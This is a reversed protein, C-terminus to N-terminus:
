ARAMLELAAATQEHFVTDALRKITRRWSELFNSDSLQISKVDPHLLRYRDKVSINKGSILSHLMLDEYALIKKQHWNQIKERYTSQSPGGTQARRYALWVNFDELLQKDTGALNVVIHATIPSVVEINTALLDDISAKSASQAKQAIDHLANTRNTTLPTITPLSSPHRPATAIHSFGLPTLPRSKLREFLSSALESTGTEFFQRLMIRERILTAWMAICQKTEKGSETDADYKKGRLASYNGISFWSQFDDVDYSQKVPKAM